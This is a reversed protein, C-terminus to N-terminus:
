NQNNSTTNNIVNNDSIQEEEVQKNNREEDIQMKNDKKEEQHNVEVSNAKAEGETNVEGVNTYSQVNPAEQMTSAQITDVNPKNQITLEDKFKNFIDESIFQNNYRIFDDLIFNFKEKSAQNVTKILQKVNDNYSQTNGFYRSKYMNEYIMNVESSIKYLENDLSSEIKSADFTDEFYTNYYSPENSMKSILQTEEQTLQSNSSMILNKNKSDFYLIMKNNTNRYPNFSDAKIIIQTLSVFYITDIKTQFVNYPESNLNLYEDAVKEQTVVDLIIMRNQSTLMLIYQKFSSLISIEEIYMKSILMTNLISYVNLTFNTDYFAFYVNNSTFLKIM